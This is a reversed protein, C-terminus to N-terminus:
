LMDKPTPAAALMAAFKEKIVTHWKRSEPLKCNHAANIMEPTPEIPVLKWGDTVKPPHTFLPTVICDSTGINELSNYVQCSGRYNVHWAVPKQEVQPQEINATASLILEQAELILRYICNENHESPFNTKTMCTCSSCTALDLKFNAEILKVKEEPIPSNKM